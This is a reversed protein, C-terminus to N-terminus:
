RRVPTTPFAFAVRSGSRFHEAISMQAAHPEVAERSLVAAQPSMPRLTSLMPIM